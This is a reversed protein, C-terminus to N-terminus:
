EKLQGMQQIATEVADTVEEEVEQASAGPYQTIVLGDKITYEPDELKGMGNFAICGGIVLMVTIVLTVTKKTIAYEALNM